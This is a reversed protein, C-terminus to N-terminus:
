LFESAGQKILNTRFEEFQGAKLLELVGYVDSAPVVGQWLMKRLRRYRWSAFENSPVARKKLYELAQAITETKIQDM